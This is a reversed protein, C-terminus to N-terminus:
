SKAVFSQTLNQAQISVCIGNLWYILLHALDQGGGGGFFFDVLTTVSRGSPSLLLLTLM